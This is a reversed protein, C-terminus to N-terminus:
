HESEQFSRCHKRLVVCLEVRLLVPFPGRTSMWAEREFMRWPGWPSCCLDLDSSM